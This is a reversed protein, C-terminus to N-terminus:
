DLDIRGPCLYTHNCVYTTWCYRRLARHQIPRPLALPSSMCNRLTLNVKWCTCYPLCPRRPFWKHRGRSTCHCRSRSSNSGISTYCHNCLRRSCTLSKDMQFAVTELLWHFLCQELYWPLTNRAPDTHDFSLRTHIGSPTQRTPTGFYPNDMLHSQVNNQDLSTCSSPVAQQVLMKPLHPM